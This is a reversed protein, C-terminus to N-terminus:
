ARMPWGGGKIAPLRPAAIAFCGCVALFAGLGLKLTGPDVRTLLKVGLPAGVIGCALFPWLRATEIGRRAPRILTVHLLLGCAV